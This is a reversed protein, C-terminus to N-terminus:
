GFPPFYVKGGPGVEMHKVAYVEERYMQLSRVDVGKPLIRTYLWIYIYVTYMYIM